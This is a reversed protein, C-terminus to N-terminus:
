HLYISYQNRDFPQTSWFHDKITAVSDKTGCMVQFSYNKMVNCQKLYLRYM